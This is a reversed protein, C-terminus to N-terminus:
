SLQAVVVPMSTPKLSGGTPEATVLVRSVGKVNGPVGVDSTGASTVSFLARTPSPAQQGHQLWMEYIHGPPPPPLHHVVLEAHSGSVRVSADGVSAAVVRTGTTTSSGLELGVVLALVIAALGGVMVAPRPLSISPLRWRRPAEAAEGRPEERVARMVRRRLARSAPYQPAAMPLADTVQQFAAVEDRCVVCSEMHQRFARAEAPDLAGLVYAAADGGCDGTHSMSGGVTM